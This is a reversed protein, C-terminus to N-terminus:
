QGDAAERRIIARDLALSRRADWTTPDIGAVLIADASYTHVTGAPTSCQARRHGGSKGGRGARGGGLQASGNAVSTM